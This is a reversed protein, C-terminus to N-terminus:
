MNSPLCNMTTAMPRCRCPPRIVDREAQRSSDFHTFNSRFIWRRRKSRCARSSLARDACPLPIACSFEPVKGVDVFAISTTHLDQRLHRYGERPEAADAQLGAASQVEGDRDRIGRCRAVTRHRHEHQTPLRAAMATPAREVGAVSMELGKFTKSSQALVAATVVRWLRRSSSFACRRAPTGLASNDPNALTRWMHAVPSNDNGLGEKPQKFHRGIIDIFPDITVVAKPDFAYLDNVTM